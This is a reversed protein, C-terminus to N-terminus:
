SPNKVVYKKIEVLVLPAIWDRGGLYRKVIIGNKDILFSEPLRFTGYKAATEGRQDLLIKMSIGTRKVFEDVGQWGEEEVNIALLEFDSGSMRKKLAELAPMEQVCPPCWSAWFNILVVKGKLGSLTVTGNKSPLRFDPARQGEKAGQAWPRASILYAGVALSVVLVLTKIRM